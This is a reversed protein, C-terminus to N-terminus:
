KVRIQFTALCKQSLLKSPVAIKKKSIKHNWVPRFVPFINKIFLDYFYGPKFCMKTKNANTKSKSLPNNTIQLILLCTINTFPIACKVHKPKLVLWAWFVYNGIFLHMVSIVTDNSCHFNLKPLLFSYKNKNIIM